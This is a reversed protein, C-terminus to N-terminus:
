EGSFSDKQLTEGVMESAYSMNWLPRRSSLAPEEVWFMNRVPTVLRPNGTSNLTM